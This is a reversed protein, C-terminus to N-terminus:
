GLPLPEYACYTGTRVTRDLHEALSPHHEAIRKQAARIRKQVNVRAREADDAAERARGGLGLAGALEAELAELEARARTTRGADNWERAEELEQRLEVIRQRYAARAKEDIVEGTSAQAVARGGGGLDLAHYERGPEAVLRALIEMGKTSKVRVTQEGFAIAWVDGEREFAPVLAARRAETAEPKAPAERGEEEIRLVLGEMGHIEALERARALLAEGESRMEADPDAVLRRGHEYLIRAVMPPARLSTARQAAREFRARGEARDGFTWALMALWYDVPGDCHLGVMGWSVNRDEFPLLSAHLARCAAEDAMTVAVEAAHVLLHPDAAAAWRSMDVGAVSEAMRDYQRAGFYFSARMVERAIQHGVELEVGSFARLVEDDYSTRGLAYGQIQLTYSANPDGSERGLDMALERLARAEDFRGAMTRLAARFAASIWRFSPHDLSEAVRAYDDAAANFGEVDGIELCDFFLRGLGRLIEVPEGLKRALAIHERNLAIRESPHAYDMLASVASRVVSLLTREDGLERALAIADRAMQMPPEPDLAPQKAASLRALVRARLGSVEDGLAGLAEELLAM